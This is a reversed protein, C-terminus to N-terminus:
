FKYGIQIGGNLSASEGVEKKLTEDEFVPWPDSKSTVKAIGIQTNIYFRKQKGLDFKYGVLLANSIDNSNYEKGTTVHNKLKGNGFVNYLEINLGKWLYQSYAITL